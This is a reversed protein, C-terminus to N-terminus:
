GLAQYNQEFADSVAELDRGGLGAEQMDPHNPHGIARIHEAIVANSAKKGLLEHMEAAANAYPRANAVAAYKAKAADRPSAPEAAKPVVSRRRTAQLRKALAVWEDGRRKDQAMEAHVKANHAAMEDPTYLAAHLPNHAEKLGVIKTRGNYYPGDGGNAWTELFRGAAAPTKGDDLMGQIHDLVGNPILSLDLGEGIQRVDLHGAKAADRSNPASPAAKKAGGLSARADEHLKAKISDMHEGRDLKIGRAKAVTMLQRRDNMDKLPDDGKGNVFAELAAGLRASLSRFEGGGPGGKPNRPHLDPNFAARSLTVDDAAWEDLVAFLADYEDDLEDDLDVEDDLPQTRAIEDLLAHVRRDCGAPITPVFGAILGDDM